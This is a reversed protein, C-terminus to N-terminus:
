QMTRRGAALRERGLETARTGDWRYAVQEDFAVESKLPERCDHALLLASDSRSEIYPTGDPEARPCSTLASPAFWARGTVLDLVAWNVCNTGCGWSFVRYHGSLNPPQAAETLLLSTYKRAIASDLVPAAPPQRLPPEGPFAAFSWAGALLWVIGVCQVLSM